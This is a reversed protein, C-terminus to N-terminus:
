GFVSYVTIEKEALVKDGVVYQLTMTGIEGTFDLDIHYVSTIKCNCIKYRIGM